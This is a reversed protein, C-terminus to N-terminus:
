KEGEKPIYNVPKHSNVNVTHTLCQNCPDKVEPVDAHVCKKCYEEFMVLKKHNQM